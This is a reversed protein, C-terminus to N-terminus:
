LILHQCEQAFLLLLILACMCASKFVENATHLVIAAYLKGVKGEILSQSLCGLSAFQHKHIAIGVPTNGATVHCLFHERQRLHAAVEVLMEYIELHIHLFAFANLKGLAVVDTSIRGHENEIGLAIAEERPQLFNSPLWNTQRVSFISHNGM